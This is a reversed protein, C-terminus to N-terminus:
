DADSEGLLDRFLSESRRAVEVDHAVQDTRDCEEWRGTGVLGRRIWGLVLDPANAHRRAALSTLQELDADSLDVVIRREGLEVRSRGHDTM